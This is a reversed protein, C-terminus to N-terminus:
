RLHPLPLVNHFQAPHHETLGVWGLGSRATDASVQADVDAPSDVVCVRM